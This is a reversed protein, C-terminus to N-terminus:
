VERDFEKWKEPDQQFMWARAQHVTKVGPAVKVAYGQNGNIVDPLLVVKMLEGRGLYSGCQILVGSASEDLLEWRENGFLPVGKEQRFQINKWDLPESLWLPLISDLIKKVKKQGSFYQHNLDLIRKKLDEPLNPIFWLKATWEIMHYKRFQEMIREVGKRIVEESLDPVMMLVEYIWMRWNTRHRESEVWYVGFIADNVIRDILEKATVEPPTSVLLELVERLGVVHGSNIRSYNM